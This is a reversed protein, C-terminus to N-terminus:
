HFIDIFPIISYNMRPRSEEYTCIDIAIKARMLEMKMNQIFKCSENLIVISTNSNKIYEMTKKSDSEDIFEPANVLDPDSQFIQIDVFGLRPSQGFNDRKPITKIRSSKYLSESKRISNQAHTLAKSPNIKSNNSCINGM